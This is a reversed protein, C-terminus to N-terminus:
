KKDANIYNDLACIEDFIYKSIKSYEVQDDHMKKINDYPIPKGIIITKRGFWTRKFNKTRIFIPLVQVQSRVAIMGAGSKVATQAPNQNSCRTGQPFMGVCKGNKLLNITNKISSVDAGNRNVPYAGLAKILWGLLPIKFLEAKAMFHPQQHRLAACLCIPDGASIHNACVLYAGQEATPENELGEVKINFILRALPALLKHAGGYFGKM